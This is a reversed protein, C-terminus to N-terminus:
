IYNRYQSLANVLYYLSSTDRTNNITMLTNYILQYAQACTKNYEMVALCKSDLEVGKNALDIQQYQLGNASISFLDYKNKSSLLMAEMLQPNLFYQANDEVNIQGRSLQRFIQASKLQLTRSDMFNLFNEGFQKKSQDFFNNM